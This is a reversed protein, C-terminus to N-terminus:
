GKKKAGDKRRKRAAGKPKAGAAATKLRLWQALIVLKADQLAGADLMKFLEAPRLECRRINESEGELGDAAPDVFDAQRVPAYFLFFRESSGGPSAYVCGVPALDQARYGIEEMIERRICDAPDEGEALGGAPPELLWGPGKEHTAFRFQEALVIVDRDLDHVLAAASDGRELILLRNPAALEGDFRESRVTVSDVKLFGDLVRERAQVLVRRQRPATAGQKEPKPKKTMM